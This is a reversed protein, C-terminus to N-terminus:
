SIFQLDDLSHVFLYATYISYYVVYVFIWSFFEAFAGCVFIAMKM